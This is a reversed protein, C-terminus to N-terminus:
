AEAAVEAVNQVLSELDEERHATSLCIMGRPAILIGRARLSAHLRQVRAPDGESVDRWCGPPVQNGHINMMSGYGTVSLQSPALVESLQQRVTQGRADLEVAAEEDYLQLSVLGAAATLPNGNFTGAHHIRDAHPPALAAMVQAGGVLAGIPLGGGIIKALATLDPRVELAKQLGHGTHRFTMVEDLVLLFGMEDALARLRAVMGPPAPIMGASGQMPEVVLAAWESGLRRAIEIVAEVDHFPLVDTLDLGGAGAEPVARPAERPGADGEPKVSVRVLDYSGHYGGEFKAIRRRGTVHRAVQLALMIAETGSNVFRVQDHGPLRAVIAEGLQTELENAVGFATGEAAREAIAQTVQPHAHGHILSTYNNIFDVYRRGEVDEV